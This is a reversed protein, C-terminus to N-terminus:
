GSSTTVPLVPQPHVQEHREVLQHRRPAPAATPAAMRRVVSQAQRDPLTGM